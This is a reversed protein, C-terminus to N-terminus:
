RSYGIFLPMRFSGNPSTILSRLVGFRNEVVQYYFGCGTCYVSEGYIYSVNANTSRFAVDTSPVTHAPYILGGLLETEGNASTEIVTGSHEAKLGLIWITGGQNSLKTGLFENNLQRAWVHQGPQIVVNQDIEVDELFLSGAGPVNQYTVKADKIVVPRAGQQDIKLGYGFQEVVLPDTNNDSVILRIGGGNYGQTSGNIVSSFGVIRKVTDPVLVSTESYSLYQGFPFYITSKGSNLVAQLGSTDGDWRPIFPAWNSLTSAALTPTEEVPLNLSASSLTGSLTRASGILSELITGTSFAPSSGMLNELTAQYGSSSVNRLYMNSNTKVAVNASVGGNLHADILVVSGGSNTLAPVANSSELGRIEVPHLVNRIGTIHQNEVTIGELTSSYERNLLDIGIDFGKVQVNRLLLPGAYKRTLDVGTQGQGDDSKVLLDHVSGSNNSIYSLATAGPNNAGVELTLDWINQHFSTQGAPTVILPKPLLKDTFGVSGPALRIVTATTGSGQLTVCCGVWKLTDHVLYVGPPFYLAKPVGYYDASADTRGDSLASQIASTDDTVGDGVAGYKKVSPMFGTPFSLPGATLNAGPALTGQAKLPGPYSIVWAVLTCLVVDFVSRKGFKLRIM